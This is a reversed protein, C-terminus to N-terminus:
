FSGLRKLVEQDDMLEIERLMAEFSKGPIVDEDVSYTEGFEGVIQEALYRALHRATPYNWMAIPNLTIKHHDEIEGALQLTAMSDLGFEALPRDPTVEEPALSGHTILRSCLWREIEDALHSLRGEGIPQYLADSHGM